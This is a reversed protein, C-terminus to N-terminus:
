CPRQKLTVDLLQSGKLRQVEKRDAGIVASSRQMKQIKSIFLHQGVAWAVRHCLAVNGGGRQAAHISFFDISDKRCTHAAKM